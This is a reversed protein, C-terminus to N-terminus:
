NDGGCRAYHPGHVAYVGRELKELDKSLQNFGFLTGSTAQSWGDRNRPSKKRETQPETNM